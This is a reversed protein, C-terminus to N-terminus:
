PFDHRQPLHDAAPSIVNQLTDRLALCDTHHIALCFRLCLSRYCHCARACVRERVGACVCLSASVCVCVCVCVCMCARTHVSPM